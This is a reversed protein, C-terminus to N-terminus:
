SSAFPLMNRIHESVCHSEIFPSQTFVEQVRRLSKSEIGQEAKTIARQIAIPLGSNGDFFRNASVGATGIGQAVKACSCSSHKNIVGCNEHLYKRMISRARHLRQRYTAPDIELILSGDRSNLAFLFSVIFVIRLNRDLCLLMGITCQMKVSQVIMRDEPSSFDDSYESPERASDILEKHMDFSIFMNEQVSRRMNLLHHSAISYLWTSFKSDGNFTSLKTLMKMMIEQTADEADQYNGTMRLALNIVLSEYKKVLETAARIDGAKAKEVLEIDCSEM